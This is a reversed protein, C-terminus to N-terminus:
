HQPDKSVYLSTLLILLIIHTLVYPNFSLFALGLVLGEKGPLSLNKWTKSLSYGWLFIPFIGYQFAIDIFINHSSDIVNGSPFYASIIASRTKNFYEMVSEPWFGIFFSPIYSKMEGFLERMLVFRSTLSLLKDSSLFYYGSILLLIAVGFVIGIRVLNEKMNLSGLYIGYLLLFFLAIYSQTTCIGLVFISVIVYRESNRITRVLPLLLLLYGALYNPNGLTSISRGSWWSAKFIGHSFISIGLYELLAFSSVLLGSVLSVKIILDKEKPHLTKVLLVLLISGAFFFYGHHKEFSGLFFTADVMSWRIFASLFPLALLLVIYLGFKRIKQKLTDYHTWIIELCAILLLILFLYMKQREFSFSEWIILGFPAFIHSFYLPILALIAILSYM